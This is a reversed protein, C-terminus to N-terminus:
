LEKALDQLVKQSIVQKEALRRAILEDITGKAILDYRTIKEHVESGGRYNRAESQIDNELSFNRSYYISYSAATLNVGVGGSAPHGLLLRCSPDHNFRHVAEDKEKASIEGNIEVHDYGLAKAVGRIAEYDARFVAWVIVKHPEAIAELLSSLADLRPIGDFREIRGERGNDEGLPLFGSVIQM